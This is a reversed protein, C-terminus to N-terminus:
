LEWFNVRIKYVLICRTSIIEFSKYVLALGGETKECLVFSLRKLVNIRVSLKACRLFVYDQKM